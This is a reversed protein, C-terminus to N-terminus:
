QTTRCCFLNHPVALVTTAAPLIARTAAAAHEEPKQQLGWLHPSCMHRTGGVQSCDVWAAHAVNFSKRRAACSAHTDVVEHLNVM